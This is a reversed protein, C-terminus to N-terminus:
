YMGDMGMGPAGMPASNKEPIDAVAVETTLFTAAVSAANQLASRVVKTPDVIGAKIMNVMEGRLADYGVEGASARVKEIIVSAEAGANTAIQRLPEELARKIINIGVQVDPTDSTLKAIEVIANIYVTGGGPLIGEEVAAKTAALADEIRLKKEKLETETAAGVKIVAVGGALKALREQLKERDFDSTTDEIQKKIQSVRDHIATKDGKGNVITTNEKTIKVSEAKGLMEVTVDKLEKGLEECIVEGGTLTAIDQLMEKRRDGFGPAKVAVCTFTGRLKNVVLTSLAEGEIDEAVILLKKGQQVIQELIPLIDQINTIKKDTILIYPEDLNAEMKEADTVMYASLYGRDFQMGEVVDLETGMSKSEEVTIVGENGVKEMADAILTGIVEDSASIAAIRAIDEKGNVPKSAKKIEEVAKDVAMKIGTRILMPNAGATVNKLGERIIAQALLTATTTGDGAVDNTKTAVEKVLQAGMNEYPDELEIERAITVGDNTILPSGFKKDLIVNRGKPGLTIKVTDALKDVGRQMARRAEEGFLINKAM